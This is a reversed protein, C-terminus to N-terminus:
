SDKSLFNKMQWAIKSQEKHKFTKASKSM